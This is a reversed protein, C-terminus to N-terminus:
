PRASTWIAEEVEPLLGTILPSFEEGWGEEGPEVEVVRVDAPWGGLAGVVILLNDLDIVGTVAESVRHQIEEVDPLVADWRYATITGPERGRRPAAIIVARDYPERDTLNQHLGVPHYGLDEVEVGEPAREGLTDAMYPGVSEDKLFRYGVGGILVRM